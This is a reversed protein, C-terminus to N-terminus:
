SRAGSHPEPAGQSRLSTLLAGLTVGDDPFVVLRVREDSFLHPMTSRARELFAQGEGRDCERGHPM